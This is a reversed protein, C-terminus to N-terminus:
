GHHGGTDPDGRSFTGDRFHDKFLNIADDNM